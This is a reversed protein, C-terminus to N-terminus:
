IYKSINPHLPCRKVTMPAQEGVLLEIQTNPTQPTRIIIGVNATTNETPPMPVTTKSVNIIREDQRSHSDPLPEGIRSPGPAQSSHITPECAAPPLNAELYQRLNFGESLDPPSSPECFPYIEAPSVVADKSLDSLERIGLIKVDWRDQSLETMKPLSNAFVVAPKIEFRKVVGRYKGSVVYGNKICELCGYDFTSISSRSVDFCFGKASSKVLAAIDRTTVQGDFIQFGYLIELYNALFSKGNNGVEDFIWLVQRESQSM